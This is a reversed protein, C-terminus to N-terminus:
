SGRRDARHRRARAQPPLERAAIPYGAYLPIDPEDPGFEERHHAMHVRRYADTPTFSPYGLLWRGVFDNAPPQRVAPPARGRADALRVPRAGSGDAPVRCPWIWPAWRSAPGSSSRRGARVARRGVLANRWSPIRRLQERFAPQPRGDARVARHAGAAAADGAGHERMLRGRRHGPDLSVAPSAASLPRAPRGEVGPLPHPARREAGVGDGNGDPFLRFTHQVALDDADRRGTAPTAAPPRGPAGCCGRGSAGSTSPRRRGPLDAGLALLEAPAEIWASAVINRDRDADGAPRRHPDAHPGGPAPRLPPRGAVPSVLGPRDVGPPAPARQRDDHRRRPGPMVITDAPCAHVAQGDISHIITPFDGGTSSRTARAARSCRTAPSCCRRATAAPLLGLRAHPGPQPDRRAAPRGVEIVEADDIFVDYGVDKLM